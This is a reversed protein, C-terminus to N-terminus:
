SAGRSAQLNSDPNGNVARAASSADPPGDRGTAQRSRSRRRRRRRRRSADTDSAASAPADVDLALEGQVSETDGEAGSPQGTGHRARRAGRQALKPADVSQLPEAVTVGSGDPTVVVPTREEWMERASRLVERANGYSIASEAEDFTVWRCATIGEDAQPRTRRQATRMLFFHCTKHIARGRFRFHWDITQLQGVLVLGRLGTEESVERLAAAHAQEGKELHGKPFGWNRYSDRILLVRPSGDRGLRVVVGGASVENRVRQRDSSM